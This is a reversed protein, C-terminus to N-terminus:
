MDKKRGHKKFSKFILITLVFVFLVGFVVIQNIFADDLTTNNVNYLVVQLISISILFLIHIYSDNVLESTIIMYSIAYVIMAISYPVVYKVIDLYMGSFVLNVIENSFFFYMLTIGGGIGTSFFLSILLNKRRSKEESNSLKSIMVTAITVSAFYVIKGILSLAGYSARIEPNVLILDMTFPVNLLFFTLFILSIQKYDLKLSKKIQIKSKTKTLPLVIATTLLVPLSFSLIILTLDSGSQLAIYGIVFKLLTEALLVMNFSLIEELGLLFGKAVPSVISVFVILSLPLIHGQPINAIDAIQNGFLLFIVSIVGGILVLQLTSKRKFTSLDFNKKSAVKKTVATQIAVTPIQILTVIGIVANYFGFNTTDLNRALYINFLYNLFHIVGGIVLTILIHNLFTKNQTIHKSLNM